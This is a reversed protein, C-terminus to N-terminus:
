LAALEHVLWQAQLTIFVLSFALFMVAKRPTGGHQKTVKTVKNGVNVLFGNHRGAPCTWHYVHVTGYVVVDCGVFFVTIKWDM